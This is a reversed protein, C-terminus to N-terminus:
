HHQSINMILSLYILCITLSRPIVIIIIIINFIIIIMTALLILINFVGPFVLFAITSCCCHSTSGNFTSLDHCFMRQRMAQHSIVSHYYCHYKSHKLVVMSVVVTANVYNYDYCNDKLSM